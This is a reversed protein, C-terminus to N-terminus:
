KKKARYIERLFRDDKALLPSVTKKIYGRKVWASGAQQFIRDFLPAKGDLGFMTTNDSLDAWRVSKLGDQTTKEGLEKYLPENEMLLKVVMSPKRNAEVTGDFWGQVFAKIVRPNQRIFDVRAVMLDAIINRLTKTSALVHTGKRKMLAETVDPEWVVAADVKGAV